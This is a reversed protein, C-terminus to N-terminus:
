KGELAAVRRRCEREIEALDYGGAARAERYLQRVSDASHATRILHRMTGEDLGGGAIAVQRMSPPGDENFPVVLHKRNRWARVARAIQVADWGAAINVWYLDCRGEGQPLHILIAKTLDLDDPWEWRKDTAPDYPKSHAYMAFQMAFKLHSYEISGTKVDAIYHANRYGVMRDTTGGVRLDDQVCFQEIYVPTLEATAAQYAEIDARYAPPVLITEGHDHQDTLAHLATGTRAAATAGAAERAQDVLQNLHERDAHHAAVSVLLDPREALGVAVMRQQWRQVNYQDEMCGVYSTCRTYAVRKSGDPLLVLPRGKGDRPMEVKTQQPIDFPDSM